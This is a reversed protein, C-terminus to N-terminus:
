LQQGLESGAPQSQLRNSLDLPYIDCAFVLVGISYTHIQLIFYRFYHYVCSAGRFCSHEVLTLENQQQMVYLTHESACWSHTCFRYACAWRDLFQLVFDEFQGTLLCLEKDAQM